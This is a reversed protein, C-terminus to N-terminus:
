FSKMLYSPQQKASHTLRELLMPLVSGLELEYLQLEQVQM